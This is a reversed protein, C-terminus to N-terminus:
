QHNSRDSSPVAALLFHKSTLKKRECINLGPTCIRTHTIERHLVWRVPSSSHIYGAILMHQRGPTFAANTQFLKHQVHTQCTPGRLMDQSDRTSTGPDPKLSSVSHPTRSILAEFSRSSHAAFQATPLALRAACLYNQSAYLYLMSSPHYSLSPTHISCITTLMPRPLSMSLHLFFAALAFPFAKNRQLLVQQHNVQPNRSSARL